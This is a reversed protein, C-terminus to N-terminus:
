RGGIAVLHRATRFYLVGESIAPTAMTVEDLRNQALLEFAAGAKVVYVDGEESTVYVKGDGAVLSATFATTGEGVRQQYNRKGSRADYVGLVGNWRCVYLLDGYVVPTAMYSGERVATWPISTSAREGERLSINGSADERVAYVPSDSGHASTLYVLGHRTIPTPVPIDGGGDIRWTSKGTRFDYGGAYHWGNVLIQPTTGVLHVTPTGFTPVDQRSTRWLERGTEVDFAALFSGKQVDALIIVVGGYIVPSSSFEWQAGPDVYWGSDLVGLDKEWLQRGGMDFAFLGESGFMAVLHTGDTALTANAHTSKQHRKVKPVGSRVTKDLAIRGTKKDLCLLKWTHVTDDNVSTVDGYLGPKLGADKMGSAATTVCLRDGWIVPSSNGLGEIPTKWRVNRNDPVDWKAPLPFGDAVGAAAAGRFSPWDVGPQPTSSRQAFLVTAAAALCAAVIM